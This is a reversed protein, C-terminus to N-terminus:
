SAGRRRRFGCPSAASRSTSRAQGVPITQVARGPPRRHAHRDRRRLEGGLRQRQRPSPARTRGSPIPAGRVGSRWASVEGATGDGQNAVWVSDHELGVGAPSDGVRIREEVTGAPQAAAGAGTAEKSSEGGSLLLSPSASRARQWSPRARWSRPVAQASSAAAGKTRRCYRPRAPARGARAARTPAPPARRGNARTRGHRRARARLGARSPGHRRRDPLPRRPGEGHLARDSVRARPADGAGARRRRRRTRSTPGSSQSTTTARSPCRAPSRHYLVCGLAYVDARGDVAEGRIQEPAVYDLTGSGSAPQPSRRQGLRTRKTLGFDTLYAHEGGGRAALLINGAERRPPGARARAGRRAGVGGPGRGRRRPRARARGRATLLARLDTGDVYRM